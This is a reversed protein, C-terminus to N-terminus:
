SKMRNVAAVTVGYEALQALVDNRLDEAFVQRLVEGHLRELYFDADEPSVVWAGAPGSTATWDRLEHEPTVRRAIGVLVLTSYAGFSDPDAAMADGVAVLSEAIDDQAM